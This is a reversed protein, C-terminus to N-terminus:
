NETESIKRRIVIKVNGYVPDKPVTAYWMGTAKSHRINWSCCSVDSLAGSKELVFFHNEGYPNVNRMLM